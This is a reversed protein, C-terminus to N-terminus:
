PPPLAIRKWRPGPAIVTESLLWVVTKMTQWRAEDRRALKVRVTDIAGGDAKLFDVKAGHFRALQSVFDCATFAHLRLHSDGLVVLPAAPDHLDVIAREKQLTEGRVAEITAGRTVLSESPQYGFEAAVVQFDRGEALTGPVFGPFQALREAAARAALSYGRPTLHPDSRLFLQDSPTAGFREAVFRATLSVADVGERALEAVFRQTGSGLGVFGTAPVDILLEPHIELRSPLLVVLLEIGHAALQRDFDVIAPLPHHAVARDVAVQPGAAAAGDAPLPWRDPLNWRAFQRFAGIPVKGNRVDVFPLTEPDGPHADLVAQLAACFGPEVGAADIAAALALAEREQALLRGPRTSAAADAAPEQLLALAVLAAIM